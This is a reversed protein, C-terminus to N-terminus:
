GGHRLVPLLFDSFPKQLTKCNNFPQISIIQMENDLHTCASERERERERWSDATTNAMMPKTRTKKAPALGSGVWGCARIPMM